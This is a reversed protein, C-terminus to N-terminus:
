LNTTQGRSKVAVAGDAVRMFVSRPADGGVDEADVFLGAQFLAKRIAAHNRKGINFAASDAIVSAGGALRAKIRRQSAGLRNMEGLLHKLGTDAFMCPQRAAKEPDLTSTPLQYHLLGGVRADADYLVVGICSGLSYTAIVDDASSSAIADSVQVVRQM